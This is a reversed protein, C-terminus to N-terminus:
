RLKKKNHKYNDYNKTAKIKQRAATRTITTAKTTQQKAAATRTM